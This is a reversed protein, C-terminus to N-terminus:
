DRSESRLRQLEQARELSVVPALPKLRALVVVFPEDARRHQRDDLSQRLYAPAREPLRRRDSARSTGCRGHCAIRRAVLRRVLRMDGGAKRPATHCSVLTGAQVEMDRRGLDPDAAPMYAGCVACSWATRSCMADFERRSVDITSDAANLRCRRRPRLRSVAARAARSESRDCPRASAAAGATEPPGRHQAARQHRGCPEVRGDELGEPTM